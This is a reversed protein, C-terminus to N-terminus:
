LCDLSDTNSTVQLGFMGSKTLKYLSAKCTSALVGLLWINPEHYTMTDKFNLNRLHLFFFFSM